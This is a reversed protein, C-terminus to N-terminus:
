DAVEAFRSEDSAGVSLLDTHIGCETKSMGVWRGSREDAGAKVSRTCPWCGISPYGQDHLSNYPVDHELIYDWVQKRTWGAMPNVKVVSHGGGVRYHELVRVGKRTESQDRRLSAIWGDLSALRRQLPEVKRMRCCRDPDRSYLAPGYDRNQDTVSLPPSVGEIEIGYHAEVRVKLDLTEGFLYGTDVTFVPVQPVTKQIVDLLVMGTPGFATGM